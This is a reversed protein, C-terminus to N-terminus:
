IYPCKWGIPCPADRLRTKHCCGDEGVVPYESARLVDAVAEAVQAALAATLEPLDCGEAVLTKLTDGYYDPPGDTMNTREARQDPAHERPDPYEEVPEDGVMCERCAWDGPVDHIPFREDDLPMGCLDCRGFASRAGMLANRQFLLPCGPSGRRGTRLGSSYGALLHNATGNRIEM